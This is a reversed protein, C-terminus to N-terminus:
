LVPYMLYRRQLPVETVSEMIQPSLLHTVPRCLRKTYNQREGRMVAKSKSKQDLLRVKLSKGRKCSIIPPKLYITKQLPQHQMLSWQGMLTQKLYSVAPHYTTVFAKKKQTVASSRSAFNVGSLSREIIAKPYRRTRLTEEFTTKSSNTRLIRM